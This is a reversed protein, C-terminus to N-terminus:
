TASHALMNDQRSCDLSNNIHLQHVLLVVTPFSSSSNNLCSNNAVGVPDAASLLVMFVMHSENVLTHLLCALCLSRGKVVLLVQLAEVM